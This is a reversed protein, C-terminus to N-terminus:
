EDGLVELIDEVIQDIPKDADITVDAQEYYPKRQELLEAIRAQPNEVNLLPRHKQDKINAYIREPSASLYIVIGNKKLNTMNEPDLVAGGGCDLIIGSQRSVEKIVEKEVKRFYLEGSDKFIEIIMRGERKEILQDISFVKRKLTGALKNSTLSKGSGMFGILVINKKIMHIINMNNTYSSFELM